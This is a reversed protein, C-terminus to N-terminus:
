RPQRDVERRCDPLYTGDSLLWLADEPLGSGNDRVQLQIGESVAEARLFFTRREPLSAIEHRILLELLRSFGPLDVTLMPLSEPISWEVRIQKVALNEQFRHLVAGVIEGLQVQDVLHLSSPHAAAANRCARQSIFTKLADALTQELDELNWVKPILRYIAGCNVAVTAAHFDLSSGFTSTLIGVTEPQIKRAHGLLWFSKKGPMRQDSIIVGIEHRQELLIGLGTKANGATLIRFSGGFARHFAKLSRKMTWM